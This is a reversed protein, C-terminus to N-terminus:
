ARAYIEEAKKRLTEAAMFYGYHAFTPACKEM